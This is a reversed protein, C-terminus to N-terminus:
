RDPTYTSHVGLDLNAPQFGEDANKAYSFM